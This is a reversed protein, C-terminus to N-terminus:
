QPEFVSLTQFEFDDGLITDIFGTHVNTQLANSITKAIFDVEADSPQNQKYLLVHIPERVVGRGYRHKRSLDLERDSEPLKCRIWEYVNEADAEFELVLGAQELIKGIAEM